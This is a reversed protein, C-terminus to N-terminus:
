ENCENLLEEKKLKRYLTNNKNLFHLKCEIIRVRAVVKRIKDNLIFIDSVISNLTNQLENKEM